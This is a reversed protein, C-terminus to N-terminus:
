NSNINVGQTWGLGMRVGCPRSKRFVFVSIQLVPCGFDHHYVPLVPHHVFDIKLLDMVFCYSNTCVWKKLVICAIFLNPLIKNKYYQNHVRTFSPALYKSMIKIAGYHIVPLYRWMVAGSPGWQKCRVAGGGTTWVESSTVEFPVLTQIYALVCINVDNNVTFSKCWKVRPQLSYSATTNSNLPFHTWVPVSYSKPLPKPIYQTNM